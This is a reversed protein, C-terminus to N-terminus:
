CSLKVRLGVLTGAPPPLKLFTLGDPLLDLVALVGPLASLGLVMRHLIQACCRMQGCTECDAGTCIHGAASVLFVCSLVLAAALALCLMGALLRKKQKM